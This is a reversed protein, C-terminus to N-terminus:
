GVEHTTEPARRTPIWMRSLERSARSVHSRFRRDDLASTVGVHRARRLANRSARAATRAHARVTPEATAERVAAAAGAIMGASRLGYSITKRKM